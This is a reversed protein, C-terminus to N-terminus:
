NSMAASIGISILEELANKSSNKFTLEASSEELNEYQTTLYNLQKLVNLVSAVKRDGKMQNLLPNQAIAQFDVVIGGKKLIKDM